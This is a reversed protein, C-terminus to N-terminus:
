ILKDVEYSLRILEGHGVGEHRASGTNINGIRKFEFVSLYNQVIGRSEVVGRVAFPVNEFCNSSFEFALLNKEKVTQTGLKIM